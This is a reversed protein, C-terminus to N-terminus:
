SILGSGNPFPTTPQEVEAYYSYRVFGRDRPGFAADLRSDFQNQHDDDNGVYTYNNARM